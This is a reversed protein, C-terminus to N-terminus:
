TDALSAPHRELKHRVDNFVAITESEPEVDDTNNESNEFDAYADRLAQRLHRDERILSNLDGLQQYCRYLDRVVDELTPEAKLLEKYLPVALEAHGDGYHLQALRQTARYCEERYYERPTVGSADREDVWEYLRASRGALLDGQYLVRAQLLAEKAGDPPLKTAARLLTVFQHVDSSIVVTDLRRIGDRESSVVDGSLNPVQEALLARLRKLATRLRAGAREEDVDPWIAALIKEKSVAGEPQAALFALVEWAKYSAGEEGSPSIERDGSTVAFGGFCRVEILPAPVQDIGPAPALGQEILAAELAPQHGNNTEIAKVLPTDEFGEVDSVQVLCDRGNEHPFQHETVIEPAVGPSDQSVDQGDEHREHGGIVRASEISFLTEEGVSVESDEDKKRHRQVRFPSIPSPEGYADRMVSALEELHEPSVRYGRLRLPMRGDIRLFLEGNALDAAGRRGILHISEDDDRTQLVARTGFHSLVDTPLVGAAATQALLRMGYSAGQTGILELTTGEDPLDAFEGVILVIEPEEPSARWRNGEERESHRMRQLLEKRLCDLTESVSAEDTPDIFDGAHPLGSLQAPLTRCDAITMLRLEDPRCRAALSAILSILIVDTGGSPLGVLLIHGLEDWNVYLMQNDPLVGLPVLHSQNGGNRQRQVAPGAPSLSSFQLVIDHDRTISARAKGGLRSGLDKVLALVQERDRPPVRLVLTVMKRGQQAWLVSADLIGNQALSRHVEDVLLNIPEIEGINLRHSLARSPDVETFEDMSRRRSPSPIPPEDLSRRARRRALLVAGGVAAVSAVGAAGILADTEYISIPSSPDRATAPTPTAVLTTATPSAPISTPMPEVPIPSLRRRPPAKRPKGTSPGPHHVVPASHHATIHPGVSPLKLRLGPWILDPNVLVHGDLQAAGRNAEFLTKWKEESGLLRAAIGQLSDGEEVVYYHVGKLESITDSPLPVRLNWGPQIVGAATFRERDTMHRGVNAAVLRPFEYGTGYFRQAIDWLTDGTQVTYTTDRPTQGNRATAHSPSLPTHSQLSTVHPTSVAPLSAAAAGSVTRSAMNVVFVTVLAGDVARRVIPLTVRDSVARLTAVWAAGHTVADSALVAIRLLLSAVIWLWVAWATTSLIYAVVGLPLSSGHLTAGVMRWSPLQTPLHPTGGTAYLAVAGLLVGVLMGILGLYSPRRYEEDTRIMAQM